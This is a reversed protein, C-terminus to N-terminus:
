EDETEEMDEEIENIKVEFPVGKEICNYCTHINENSLRVLYHNFWDVTLVNQEFLDRYWENFLLGVRFCLTEVAANTVNRKTWIQDTEDFSTTKLFKKFFAVEDSPLRSMVSALAAHVKTRCKPSIEFLFDKFEKYKKVGVYYPSPATKSKSAEEPSVLLNILIKKDKTYILDTESTLVGHKAYHIGAETFFKDMLMNEPTEIGLDKQIASMSEIDIDNGEGNLGYFVDFENQKMEEKTADVDHSSVTNARANTVNCLYAFICRHMGDSNTRINYKEHVILTITCLKHIFGGKSELSDLIYQYEIKDTRQTPVYIWTVAADTTENFYKLEDVAGDTKFSQEEGVLGLLIPMNMLLVEPITLYDEEDEKSFGIEKRLESSRALDDLVRQDLDADDRLQDLREQISSTM